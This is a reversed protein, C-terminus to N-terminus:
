RIGMWDSNTLVEHRSFPGFIARPIMGISFIMYFLSATLFFNSSKDSFYLFILCTLSALLVWIIAAM